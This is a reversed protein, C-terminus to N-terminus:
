NSPARVHVSPIMFIVSVPPVILGGLSKLIFLLAVLLLWLHENAWKSIEVPSTAKM